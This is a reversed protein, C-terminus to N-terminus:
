RGRAKISALLRHSVIWPLHLLATLSDMLNWEFPLDLQQLDLPSQVLALADPDIDCTQTAMSKMEMRGSTQVAKTCTLTAETEVSISRMSATIETQTQEEKRSRYEQKRLRVLEQNLRRCEESKKVRDYNSEQLDQELTQIKSELRRIRGREATATQLQQQLDANQAELHHIHEQLRDVQDEAIKRNQYEVLQTRLRNNEQLLLQGFEAALLL